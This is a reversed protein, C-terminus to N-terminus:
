LSVRTSASHSGDSATVTVTTVGTEKPSITLTSGSVSTTAKATDSPVATYTLTDSDPDTFYPNLDITRNSGDIELDQRGLLQNTPQPPSNTHPEINTLPQGNGDVPILHWFGM